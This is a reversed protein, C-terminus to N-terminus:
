GLFHAWSFASILPDLDVLFDPSSTSLLFSSNRFNSICSDLCRLNKNLDSLPHSLFLPHPPYIQLRFYEPPNSLFDFESYCSTFRSLSTPSTRSFASISQIISDSLTNLIDLPLFRALLPYYEQHLTLQNFCNSIVFCNTAFAALVSPSIQGGNTPVIYLNQESLFTTFDVKSLFSHFHLFDSLFSNSLLHRCVQSRKHQYHTLSCCFGLSPQSSITCSLKSLTSIDLTNSCVLFPPYLYSYIVKSPLLQELLIADAPNAYSTLISANNNLLYHYCFSFCGPIHHTDGLIVCNRIYPPYDAVYLSGLELYTRIISSSDILAPLLNILRDFSIHNSTLRLTILFSEPFASSLPYIADTPGSSVCVFIYGAQVVPEVVHDAVRSRSPFIYYRSAQM